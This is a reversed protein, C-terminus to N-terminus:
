EACVRNRGVLKARRLRRTALALLDDGTAGEHCETLDAVGVSVTVSVSKAGTKIRLSEIRARIREATHSADSRTSSPLLVAMEDGGYRTVLEHLRLCRGIEDVVARLVVDGAPHGGGDNVSKFHDLNFLMVSLASKEARARTIEMTLRESFYRRNYARTLSDRTEMDFLRRARTDEAEDLLVFQVIATAGIQVRDGSRLEASTVRSGNLLTGNTSGLDEVYFADSRRVFRCHIRSVGADDIKVDAEDGRGVLFLTKGDLAIVSNAAIGTLVRLRPRAGLTTKAGFSRPTTTEADEEDWQRYLAAAFQRPTHRLRSPPPADSSSKPRLTSDLREKPPESKTGDERRWNFIGM